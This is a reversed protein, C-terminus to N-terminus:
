LEKYSLTNWPGPRYLARVPRLTPRFSDSDRPKGNCPAFPGASGMM